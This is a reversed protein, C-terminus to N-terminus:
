RGARMERMAQEVNYSPTRGQQPQIGEVAIEPVTPRMDSNRLWLRLLHRRRDPDEWDEFATRAHLHTFNNFWLIQGPELTFRLQLEDSGAVALFAEVAAEEFPGLPEGKAEQGMVAYTRVWRCSVKGDVASFVPVKHPTVPDEGPGEEGRRHMYFGEYLRELYDPREALLRNHAALASTLHSVGGERAARLSFLGVIHARDTHPDLEKRNRYARAHPDERTVDRVHGLRDGLVSQSMGAGLQTGMAWYVRESDEQRWREVPLGAMVAFGRGDRLEDYLAALRAEVLPCRFDDRDIDDLSKGARDMEAIFGDLEDIEAATLRLTYDEPGAFDRVTWLGSEDVARM